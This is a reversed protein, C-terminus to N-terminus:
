SVSSTTVPASPAFITAPTPTPPTTTATPTAGTTSTPTNTAFNNGGQNFFSGSKKTTPITTTTTTKPTAHSASTSGVQHFAVLGSFAGFCVISGVSIGRKLTNVLALARTKPMKQAGGPKQNVGGLKQVAVGQPRGTAQPRQLQQRGSPPLEGRGERLKNQQQIWANYRDNENQQQMWANYRDNENQQQIWANHRDNNNSDRNM